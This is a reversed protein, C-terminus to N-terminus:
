VQQHYFRKVQLCKNSKGDSAAVLCLEDNYTTSASTDTVCGTLNYGQHVSLTENDLEASYCRRREILKKKKKHTM